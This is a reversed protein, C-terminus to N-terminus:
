GNNRVTKIKVSRFLVRRKVNREYDCDVINVIFFLEVANYTQAKCYLACFFNGRLFFSPQIIGGKQKSLIIAARLPSVSM